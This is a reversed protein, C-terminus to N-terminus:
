LEDRFSGFNKIMDFAAIAYQRLGEQKAMGTRYRNLAALAEDVNHPDILVEDQFQVPIIEKIPDINSAIIPVKSFIAEVLANPQGETVSPFFFVDLSSLVLEVDKRLGLLIVHKNIGYPALARKFEVTDTGSGCFLFLCKNVKAALEQAVKFITEHNKAPDYRGVHGVVFADQPIDLTRRAEKKSAEAFRKKDVGNFIVQFRGDGCSKNGFFVNLAHQSNSLIRTASIYVLRNMIRSYLVRLKTPRFAPSSRRYFAIRKPIGAAKALFLTIGAFNGTLDCITRFNNQRLFRYFLLWRFPNAYSISRYHVDAGTHLYEDYLEARSASKAVVCALKGFDAWELFRLLYNEMGGSRLSPLIFCIGTNNDAM